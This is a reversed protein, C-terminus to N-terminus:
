HERPHRHLSRQPPQRFKDHKPPQVTRRKQHIRHINRTFQKHVHVPHDRHSTINAKSSAFIHEVSHFNSNTPPHNEKTFISHEKHYQSNFQHSSRLDDEKRRTSPNPSTFRAPSINTSKSTPSVKNITISDTLQHLNYKPSTFKTQHFHKHKKISPSTFKTQHFHKHKKISTNRTNV